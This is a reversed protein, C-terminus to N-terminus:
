EETAAPAAMKDFSETATDMSSRSKAGPKEGDKGEPTFSFEVEAEWIHEVTFKGGPGSFEAGVEPPEGPFLSKPLLATEAEPGKDEGPKANPDPTKPKAEPPAATDAAPGSDYYDSDEPM